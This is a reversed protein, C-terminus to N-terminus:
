KIFMPHRWSLRLMFVNQNAQTRNQHDDVGTNNYSGELALDDSLEYRLLCNANHSTQDTTSGSFEGPDAKNWSYSVALNGSLKRTFRKSVSVSAATRQTAGSRGSATTLDHILSVGGSLREGAYSLSLNGLWGANESEGWGLPAGSSNLQQFRSRVSQAGLNAALHWLESLDTAGGITTSLNDVRSQDTQDRNFSIRPMLSTKARFRSLDVTLQATGQQVVTDFYGSGLYNDQSRQYDLGASCFENVLYKEGFQYSQHIIVSNTALGSAPDISGFRSDRQYTAGGSLSLRPSALYNGAGQLIYDFSDNATHNLYDVRTVGATLSEDHREAKDFVSLSPSLNSIFDGTAHETALFINDSYQEQLTLSPALTLEDAWVPASRVTFLLAALLILAPIGRGHVIDTFLSSM